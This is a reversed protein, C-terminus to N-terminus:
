EPVSLKVFVVFPLPFVDRGALRVTPWAGVTLTAGVDTGRPPVTTAEHAFKGPFTSTSNHRPPTTQNHGFMFTVPVIDCFRTVV